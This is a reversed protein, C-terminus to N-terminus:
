RTESKCIMYTYEIYAKVTM